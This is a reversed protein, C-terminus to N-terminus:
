SKKLDEWNLNTFDLEKLQSDLYPLLINPLDKYNDPVDYYRFAYTRHGNVTVPSSVVKVYEAFVNVAMFYAAGATKPVVMLRPANVVRPDDLRQWSTYRQIEFHKSRYNPWLGNKRLWAILKKLM